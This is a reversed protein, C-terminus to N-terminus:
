YFVNLTKHKGQMCLLILYLEQICLLIIFDKKFSRVVNNRKLSVLCKVFCKSLFSRFSIHKWKGDLIKNSILTINWGGGYNLITLRNVM